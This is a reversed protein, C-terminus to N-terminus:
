LSVNPKLLGSPSVAYSEGPGFKEDFYAKNPRRDKNKTHFETEPTFAQHSNM